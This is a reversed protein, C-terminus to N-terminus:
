SPGPPKQGELTIASLPVFAMLALNILLCERTVNIDHLTTKFSSRRVDFM